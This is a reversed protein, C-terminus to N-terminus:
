WRSGCEKGVRREESRDPVSKKGTIRILKRINKRRAPRYKRELPPDASSIISFVDFVVVRKMNSSFFFTLVCIVGFSGGTEFGSGSGLFALSGFSRVVRGKGECDVSSM